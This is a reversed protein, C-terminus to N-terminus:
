FYGPIPKGEITISSEKVVVPSTKNTIVVQPSTLYNSSSEKKYEEIFVSYLSDYTSLTSASWRIEDNLNVGKLKLPSGGKIINM